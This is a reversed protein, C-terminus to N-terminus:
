RLHDAGRDLEAQLPLLVDEVGRRDVGFRDLGELRERDREHLVSALSAVTRAPPPELGLRACLSAVVGVPDDHLDAHDVVVLQRGDVAAADTARRLMTAWLGLWEQATARPDVRDSFAERVSVVVGVFAEFAIAPDRRVHVVTADPAASWLDDYGFMHYPSAGLWRVDAGDDLLGLQTAWFRYAPRLDQQELWPAYGTARLMMLLQLSCLTHHLLQTCGV